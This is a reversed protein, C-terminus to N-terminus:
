SQSNLNALQFDLLRGAQILVMVVLVMLYIILKLVEKTLLMAALQSRGGAACMVVIEKDTSIEKKVNEVFNPDPEQWKTLDPSVTIFFTKSNLAESNPKEGDKWEAKTRVDLLVSNPNNKLYNKLESSKIQKIMTPGM